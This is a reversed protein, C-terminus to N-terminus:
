YSWGRPIPTELGDELQSGSGDHTCERVLLQRLSKRCLFAFKGDLQNDIEIEWNEVASGPELPVATGPGQPSVKVASPLFSQSEM